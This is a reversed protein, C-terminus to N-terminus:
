AVTLPVAVAIVVIIVAVGVVSMRRNLTRWWVARVREKEALAMKQADAMQAEIDVVGGSGTEAVMDGRVRDDHHRAEATKEENEDHRSYSSPPMERKAPVPLLAALMWAVPLIFGLCFLWMQRDAAPRNPNPGNAGDVVWSSPRLCRFTSSQERHLRPTENSQPGSPGFYRLPGQQQHINYHRGSSGNSHNTTTPVKSISFRDGHPHHNSHGTSPNHPEIGASYADDEDDENASDPDRVAPVPSPSWNESYVTSHPRNRPRRISAISFESSAPSDTPATNTPRSSSVTRSRYRDNRRDSGNSGSGQTAEHRLSNSSPKSRTSPQSSGIVSTDGTSYFSRAWAPLGKAIHLVTANSSRSAGTTPRSTSGSKRIGDGERGTLLNFFSTSDVSQWPNRIPPIQARAAAAASSEEGRDQTVPRSEFHMTPLSVLSENATNRFSSDTPPESHASSPITPLRQIPEPQTSSSAHSSPWNGRDNPRAARKPICLPAPESEEGTTSTMESLSRVEPYLFDPHSTAQYAKQAASPMTRLDDLLKDSSSFNSYKESYADSASVPRCLNDAELFPSLPNGFTSVPRKDKSVGPSRPGILPTRPTSIGFPSPTRPNTSTPRTSASMPPHLTWNSGNSKRDEHYRTSFTESSASSRASTVSPYEESPQISRITSRMASNRSNISGYLDSSPRAKGFSFLDEDETASRITDSTSKRKEAALPQPVLSSFYEPVDSTGVSPEPTKWSETPTQEPPSFIFSSTTPSPLLVQSPHAPFPSKFYTASPTGREQREVSAGRQAERELEMRLLPPMPQECREPPPSAANRESPSLERLPQRSLTLVSNSRGRSDRSKRKWRNEQSHPTQPVDSQTRHHRTPSDNESSSKSSHTRDKQLKNRAPSM